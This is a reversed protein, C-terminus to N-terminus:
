RFHVPLQKELPTPFGLSKQFAQECQGKYHQTGEHVLRLHDQQAQLAASKVAVSKNQSKFIINNGKQCVWCLDSMPKAVKINPFLRNWRDCFLSYGASEINAEECSKLYYKHISAKSEFSPIVVNREDRRSPDRGPLCEM